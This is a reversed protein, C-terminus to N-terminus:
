EIGCLATKIGLEDMAAAKALCAELAKEKSTAYVVQIHNAKHRAMMQDRSVGDLVGHMIPWQPTTLDWRRQTEEAPLEAVEGTGLDCHLRDNMIYVRSWVIHGPKSVGKLSGGGLHFYMPPQRESSAGAYGGAFHSAPAAGSILFVWVFADGGALPYDEGYRLDHLTNDGQMGLKEWLRYTLLSDLGACEDVENFHPLAKGPLIEKGDRGLVPPRETCNLLGEALDSAPALDKLGQQYQIGITDCGFEEALRLAAIYMKCQELTQAKTLETAPDSGWVFTMGRDLLWDLVQAAEEETVTKMAAYLTSQSLREKFVGTPHLLHDPIIANFMGMCGEDFVGMIAKQKRFERAFRRGTEALGNPFAATDFDRVHGLDHTVKGSHIWEKLGNLFFDDSFDRSWLSSYSVRAKTLSGNLNLMGVLGPWQGDWNALTLIPGKHTTLGALVHHSYQWVSEAVVLPKAPDLDRFVQMGMKQSDIFGHGKEADYPHARIVRVGLESFVRVLKEEMEEQAPWCTQNAALRLDGSAILYIEDIM